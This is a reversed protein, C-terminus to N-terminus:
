AAVSLREDALVATFHGNRIIWKTPDDIKALITDKIVARKVQRCVNAIAAGSFEETNAALVALDVDAAIPANRLHVAFIAERSEVDPAPLEIHMDIRGPRLIAPDVLGVENTAGMVLVPKRKKVGDLMTLLQGVMRAMVGSTDASRRPAVADLEDLFLVCPAAQNTAEVLKRIEKEGAGMLGRVLEPGAIAIFNVESETAIAKALLTKGNGPPGHLLIGGMEAPDLGMHQFRDSYKLPYEIRERLEEKVKWLGGIDDWKVHPMESGYNALVSPTVFDSAFAFDEATVFIEAAEEPTIDGRGMDMASLVRGLVHEAAEGTIKAIDAGTCGHAGTALQPINVEAGLPMERTHIAFIEARGSEDPVGINVTHGFRGPRMIAPDITHAINSTGIVIVLGNLNDMIECLQGVVGITEAAGASDMAVDERIPCLGDLEELVLISPRGPKGATKAQDFITRLRQASEGVYKHKVSVGAMSIFPLGTADAVAQAILTKGCGPPGSLLIGVPPSIGLRAYVRPFSIPFEVLERVRLIEGDLGGIHAFAVSKDIVSAGSMRLKTTSCTKVPGEPQVNIVKFDRRVNDSCVVRVLDGSSLVRHDTLPTAQIVVGSAGEQLPELVVLEALSFESKEVTIEDGIEVGLSKRSMVDLRITGIGDDFAAFPMVKAGSPIHCELAITDGPALSMTGMDKPHMHVFGRDAFPGDEAAEVVEFKQRELEIM